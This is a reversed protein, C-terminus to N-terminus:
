HFKFFREYGLASGQNSFILNIKHQDYILGTIVGIQRPGVFGGGSFRLKDWFGPEYPNVQPELSTIKFNPNTSAVYATWVKDRNETLAIEIDFNAIMKSFTIRFPEEIEFHGMLQFGNRDINFRQVDIITSDDLMVTDSITSVDALSDELSATLRTLSRIDEDKGDINKQLDSNVIVLHDLEVGKREAVGNADIYLESNKLAEARWDKESTKLDSYNFSVMLLIGALIGAMAHPIYKTIKM